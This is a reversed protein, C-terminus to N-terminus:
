TSRSNNCYKKHCTSINKLSYNNNEDIVSVTNSGSNTVYIKNDFSNFKIDEPLKIGDDSTFNRLHKNNTTDIISVSNTNKSTCM